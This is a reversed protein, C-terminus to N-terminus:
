KSQIASARVAQLVPMIQARNLLRGNAFITPTGQVNVLAGQKAQAKIADVTAPDGICTQMREWNLGLQAIAQALLPDVETPNSTHNVEDQISYLSHHLEWGKGEKEACFVAEALRCSIGNAGEFKENCAGDLPFSYFEFRVDPHSKAFADLTYSAHKCHSCRFDAFEVLTMAAQELAPGMVLSPKAVFNQKPSALWESLSDRVISEVQDAGLNQMFVQHGLIALVPVAIFSGLIFKAQQWHPLDSALGTWFPESLIGIFAFFIVASLIYVSICFLCYSQMQTLSILAMVVSASLVAGALLATWRKTREPVDSWELWSMLILVFLVANAAAGFLAIPIGSVSAYNSASVADCDFKANLNCISNSSAFGFKLPYYHM